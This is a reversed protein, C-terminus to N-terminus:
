NAKDYLKEGNHIFRKLCSKLTDLSERLLFIQRRGKEVEILDRGPPLRDRSKNLTKLDYKLRSILNRVRDLRQKAPPRLPVLMARVERRDIPAGDMRFRGDGHYTPLTPM